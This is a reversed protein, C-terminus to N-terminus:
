EIARPEGLLQHRRAGQQKAIGALTELATMLVPQPVAAKRKAVRPIVERADGGIRPNRAALSVEWPQAQRGECVQGGQNRPSAGTQNM